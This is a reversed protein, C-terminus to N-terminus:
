PVNVIGVFLPFGNQSMIEFIFPRDLIFEAKDEPIAAGCYQMVTLASARCGEEDIQVRAAHKANSIFIGSEKGDTLPSFDSISGDFADTVGLKKLMDSLETDCSVDFKPVSLKVNCYKNEFDKYINKENLFKLTIDDKLLEEPAIGEDPLILRMEGNQELPMSIAAFKDSCLYQMDTQKNMFDCMIDGTPAHFVAEKTKSPDFKYIWKGAYDVTSALTIVMEPDFKIGKVSNELLGGTQENLWGQFLKDYEETGPEGSFSSAYYDICLTNFIDRSYPIDNNLWISNALVCKAMGDDSYNAQWISCAHSRLSEISDQGLLDLIQQRTNGGSIEASMALAMFTSMPSYVKSDTEDATLMEKISDSLFKDIGDAYGAPQDWRSNRAKMWENFRKDYQEWSENMEQDGPYAPMEPYEAKVLLKAAPSDPMDQTGETGSQAKGSVAPDNNNNMMYVGAGAGCICVAAAAAIAPIFRKPSKKKESMKEQVEEIIEDDINTIGDFMKESKKSM